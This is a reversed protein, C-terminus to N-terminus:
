LESQPVEQLGMRRLTANSEKLTAPNRRVGQIITDRYSAEMKQRSVFYDLVEKANMGASRVKAAEDKIGVVIRKLEVQEPTDTPETVLPRKLAADLDGLLLDGDGSSDPLSALDGPRVFAALTRESQFAFEVAVAPLQRRPLPTLASDLAPDSRRLASDPTRVLIVGLVLCLACLVIISWGRKGLASLRNLFGPAPWVKMPRVGSKRLVAYADSQSSAAIEGELVGREKDQYRYLFKM